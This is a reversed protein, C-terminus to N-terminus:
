WRDLFPSSLAREPAPVEEGLLLGGVAQEALLELEAGVELAVERQDVAAGFWGVADDVLRQALVGGDAFGVRHAV